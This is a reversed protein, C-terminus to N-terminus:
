TRLSPRNSRKVIRNGIRYQITNVTMTVEATADHPHPIGHGHPAGMSHHAHDLNTDQHHYLRHHAVVFLPDLGHAADPIMACQLGPDHVAVLIRVFLPDLGRAADPTMICQPGLDHVVVPIRVFLPDLDRAIVLTRACIHLPGQVAVLM